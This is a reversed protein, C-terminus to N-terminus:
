KKRFLALFRDEYEEFAGWRDLEAKLEGPDLEGQAVASFMEEIRFRAARPLGRDTALLGMRDLEGVNHGLSLSTLEYIFKMLSVDWLHDVGQIVASLNEGDRELQDSLREGVAKPLGSVVNTELLENRYQYLLGPANSGHAESLFRAYEEAHEFGRFMNLLYYPTVLKPREATVTGKRVVTEQSDPSLDAYVPETLLFYTIATVGFTALTQKPPRLVHTKRSVEFLAEPDLSM